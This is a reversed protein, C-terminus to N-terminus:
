RERHRELIVGEFEHTLSVASGVPVLGHCGGWHRSGWPSSTGSGKGLAVGKGFHRGPSPCPSFVALAEAADSPEQHLEQCLKEQNIMAKPLIHSPAVFM